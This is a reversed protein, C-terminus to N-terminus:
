SEPPNYCQVRHDRLALKQCTAITISRPRERGPMTEGSDYSVAWIKGSANRAIGVWGSYDAELVQFSIWFPHTSSMARRACDLSGPTQKPYSNHGCAFADKGAIRAIWDAYDQPPKRLSEIYADLDPNRATPASLMLIAFFARYM